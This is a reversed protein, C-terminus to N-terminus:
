RSMVSYSVNRLTVSCDFWRRTLMLAVLDFNFLHIIRVLSTADFGGMSRQGYGGNKFYGGDILLYARCYGRLDM